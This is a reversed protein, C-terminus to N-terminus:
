SIFCVHYRCHRSAYYVPLMAYLELPLCPMIAHRLVHRCRLTLMMFRTTYVEFRTLEMARLPAPTHAFTAPLLCRRRRLSLSFFMLSMATDAAAPRPMRILM